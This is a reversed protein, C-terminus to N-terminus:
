EIIFAKEKIEDINGNVILEATDSSVNHNTTAFHKKKPTKHPHAMQDGRKEQSSNTGAQTRTMGAKRPMINEQIPIPIGYQEKVTKLVSNGKKRTPVVSWEHYAEATQVTPVPQDVPVTPVSQDVAHVTPSIENGLM